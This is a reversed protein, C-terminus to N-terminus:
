NCQEMEKKIQEAFGDVWDNAENLGEANFEFKRVVESESFFENDSSTAVYITSDSLDVEYSINLYDLSNWRTLNTKFVEIAEELKM